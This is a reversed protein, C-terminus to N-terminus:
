ARGLREDHEPVRCMRKTHVGTVTIYGTVCKRSDLNYM